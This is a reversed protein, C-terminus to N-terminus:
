KISYNKDRIQRSIKIVYWIDIAGNVGRHSFTLFTCLDKTCM